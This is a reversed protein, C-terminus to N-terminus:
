KKISDRLNEITEKLIENNEKLVKIKSNSVDLEKRYYNSNSCMINYNKRIRKNEQVCYDIEDRKRKLNNKLLNNDDIYRDIDTELREIKYRFPENAEDLKYDIILKMLDKDHIAIDFVTQGFVNSISDDIKRDFLKKIFEENCTLFGIHLLTNGHQDRCDLHNINIKNDDILSIAKNTHRKIASDFIADIIIKLKDGTVIESPSPFWPKSMIISLISVYLIIM